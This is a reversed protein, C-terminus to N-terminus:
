GTDMEYTVELEIRVSWGQMDGGEDQDAKRTITARAIAPETTAKIRQVKKVAYKAAPLLDMLRGAVGIADKREHWFGEFEAAMQRVNWGGPTNMNSEYDLPEGGGQMGFFWMGEKESYEYDKPLEGVYANKGYTQGLQSALWKTIREETAEWTKAWSGAM